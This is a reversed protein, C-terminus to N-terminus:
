IDYSDVSKCSFTEHWTGATCEIVQEIKEMIKNIKEAYLDNRRSAVEVIDTPPFDFSCSIQCRPCKKKANAVSHEIIWSQYM